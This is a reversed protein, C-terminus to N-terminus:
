ELTKEYTESLGRALQEEVFLVSRLAIVQQRFRELEAPQAKTPDGGESAALIGLALALADIARRHQAVIFEQMSYVGAYKQVEAYDMHSFAGTRDATQWSATRLTPFSLGLELTQIASRKTALMDSAFRLATEIKKGRDEMGSIEVDVERKNDTIERRINEGAERVLARDRLTERVGELSLAILVGATITGLQILLDKWSHIAGHPPHIEV